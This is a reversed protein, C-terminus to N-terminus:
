IIPDGTEQKTFDEPELDDTLIFAGKRVVRRLIVDVLTTQNPRVFSELVQETAQVRAPYYHVFGGDPRAVLEFGLSEAGPLKERLTKKGDRPDPVADLGTMVDHNLYYTLTEARRQNRQRDVFFGGPLYDPSVRGKRGATLKLDFDDIAHDGDDRVRFVIMSHADHLFPRDALLRRKYIEVREKLRVEETHRDFDDCLRAYDAPSSVLLCQLVADVTPHDSEDDRVSRVIGMDKGSHSRGEVLTFATRPARAPEAALVLDTMPLKKAGLSEPPPPAQEIRIYTANLNAAATRIVGDSGDEDTYSNLHDYLARDISQGILVFPYVPASGDLSGSSTIWKRNLIWSEPSGLELWDLLGAGPEVGEFWTKIRGVRSKGLQALAAGFNAPALMILHSMPCDAAPSREAYFRNWWDRAVPGGTSHTICVFRRGQRIAEGLVDDIASQFARSLDEMKVVDSFSIYKGLWINHVDLNLGATRQAERQLRAPLQGYTDTSRVSWGHVFVVSRLNDPM